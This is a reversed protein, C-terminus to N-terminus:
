TSSSSRTPTSTTSSRAITASRNGCLLNTAGSLSRIRVIAEGRDKEGWLQHYYTAFGENIWGNSWDSMTVDDGFWHQALEHPSWCTAPAKRYCRRDGSAAGHDPQRDDGLRGAQRRVHLARGDDPRIKRVSVERRHTQQLYAVMESTRGFCLRMTSKPMRAAARVLRRGVFGADHSTQLAPRGCVCHSVDIQPAARELGVDREFGRRHAIEFLRKRGRDLWAPRFRHTRQADESETRGVDSVM